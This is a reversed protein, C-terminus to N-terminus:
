LGSGGSQGIAMKLMSLQKKYLNTMLQYDASSQSLKIMEDESSVTNGNISREEPSAIRETPPGGSTASVLTLHGPNTVAPTLKKQVNALEGSFDLPKLDSAQYNPTDANEINESLVKLRSNLWGMKQTIANFLPLDTLNM